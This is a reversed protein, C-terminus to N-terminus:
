WPNSLKASKSSTRRSRRVSPKDDKVSTESVKHGTLLLQPLELKSDERLLWRGKIEVYPETSIWQTWFEIRSLIVKLDVGKFWENHTKFCGYCAPEFVRYDKLDAHILQEIRAVNCVKKTSRYQEEAIHKCGDQWERIRLDVDRTTYGIKRVGFAARNWYVYIYGPKLEEKSLPKKAQELVLESVSIESSGDNQYPLYKPIYHLTTRPM